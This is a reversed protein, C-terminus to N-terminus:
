FIFMYFRWIIKEHYVGWYILIINFLIYNVVFYYYINVTKDKYLNIILNYINNYQIFNSM